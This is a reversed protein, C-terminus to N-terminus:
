AGLAAGGDVVMEHMTIYRSQDSLLFTVADAVDDVSAIRGLPVGARFNDLDGELLVKGFGMDEMMRHIMPTETAGPAVTNVRIGLPGLELAFVRMLHSIGAKSACYAGQRVRPVRAANSSITVIAGSKRKAMYRAAARTALWTGRLNVAFHNDFDETSQDILPNLKQIGAVNVMGSIGGALKKEAIDIAANVSTEDTQDAEIATASLEAAVQGVANAQRDILALQAGGAALHRAIAEGIGQAAGTIVIGADQIGSLEM